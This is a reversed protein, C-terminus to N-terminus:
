LNKSIIRLTEICSVIAVVIIIINFFLIFPLTLNDGYKLVVGHLCPHTYAFNWTNKAKESSVYSHNSM